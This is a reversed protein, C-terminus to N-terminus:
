PSVFLTNELSNLKSLLLELDTMAASQDNGLEIIILEQRQIMNDVVETQEDSMLDQLTKLTSGVKDLQLRVDATRDQELALSAEAVAAKASLITLHITLQDLEEQLTTNQEEFEMLRSVESELDNIEDTAQTLESQLSAVRDREPQLRLLTDVFFGGAFSLALVVLWILIRRFIKRGRSLGKEEPVEEELGPAGETEISSTEDVQDDDAQAEIEAETIKKELEEQAMQNENETM